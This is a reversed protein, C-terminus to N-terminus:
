LLPRVSRVLAVLQSQQRTATKSFIRELYTRATKIKIANRDAAEQLTVGGALVVCLSAEAATLGFLERLHQDVHPSPQLFVDRLVVLASPESALGFFKPGSFPAVSVVIRPLGAQSEAGVVLTGGGEGGPEASAAASILSCLKGQIVPNNCVIRSSKIAMSTPRSLVNEAERNLFEVKGTGDVLVIGVPLSEFISGFQTAHHIEDAVSMARIMHEAVTRFARVDRDELERIGRGRHLHLSWNGKATRRLNCTVGQWMDRPRMWENWLERRQFETEDVIEQRRFVAGVQQSLSAAFYPDRVHAEYSEVSNFAKDAISVIATWPPKDTRAICVRSSHFLTHMKDVTTQWQSSDYAAQYISGVVSSIAEPSLGSM